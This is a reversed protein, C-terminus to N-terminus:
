VLQMLYSCPRFPLQMGLEASGSPIRLPREGAMSRFGYYSPPELPGQEDGKMYSISSFISAHHLFTFFRQLTISSALMAFTVVQLVVTGFSAYAVMKVALGAYSVASGLLSGVPLSAITDNM